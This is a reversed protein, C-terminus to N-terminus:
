KNDFLYNSDKKKRSKCEIAPSRKFRFSLSFKCLTPARSRFVRLSMQQVSVKERPFVDSGKFNLAIKLRSDVLM